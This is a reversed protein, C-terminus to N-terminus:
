GQIKLHDKFTNMFMDPKKALEEILREILSDPLDMIDEYDAARLAMSTLKDGVEKAMMVAIGHVMPELPIKNVFEKAMDKTLSSPLNMVRGTNTAAETCFVKKLADLNM